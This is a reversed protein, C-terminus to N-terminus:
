IAANDNVIMSESVIKKSGMPYHLGEDTFILNM